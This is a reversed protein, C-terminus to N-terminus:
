PGEGKETRVTFGRDRLINKLNLLHRDWYHTKRGGQVIIKAEDMTLKKARIAARALTWFETQVDNTQPM